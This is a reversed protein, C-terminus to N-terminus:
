WQALIAKINIVIETLIYNNYKEWKKNVKGYLKMIYVAIKHVNNDGM